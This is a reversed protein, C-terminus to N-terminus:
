PKKNNTKHSKIIKHYKINNTNHYIILKIANLIIVTETNLKILKVANLIILKIYQYNISLNISLKYNQNIICNISRM